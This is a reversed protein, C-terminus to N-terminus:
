WECYFLNLFWTMIEQGSVTFVFFLLFAFSLCVSYLHDCIQALSILSRTLCRTQLNKFLIIFWSLGSHVHAIFCVFGKLGWSQFSGVFEQAFWKRQTQKRVKLSSPVCIKGSNNFILSFTDLGGVDLVSHKVICLKLM